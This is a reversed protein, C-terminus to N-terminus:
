SRAQPFQQPPTGGPASLTEGLRARSSPGKILVPLRMRVTTTASAISAVPGSAGSAAAWCGAGSRRGGRRRRDSLLRLVIGRPPGAPLRSLPRSHPAPCRWRTGCQLATETKTAGNPDGDQDDADAGGRSGRAGGMPAPPHPPLTSGSRRRGGAQDTNRRTRSPFPISSHLRPAGRVARALTRRKTARSTANAAPMQPVTM